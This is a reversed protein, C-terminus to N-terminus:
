YGRKKIEVDQKQQELLAKVVQIKHRFQTQVQGVFQPTQPDELAAVVSEGEKLRACLPAQDQRGREEYHLEEAELAKLGKTLLTQIEDPRLRKVDAPTQGPRLM